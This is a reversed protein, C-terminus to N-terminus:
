ATVDVQQGLNPTIEQMMKMINLQEITEMELTKKLASIAVTANTQALQTTSISSIIDM